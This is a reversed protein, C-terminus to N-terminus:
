KLFNLIRLRPITNQPMSQRQPPLLPPIRRAPSAQREWYRKESVTSRWGRIHSRISPVPQAHTSALPLKRIVGDQSLNSAGVQDGVSYPPRRWPDTPRAPAGERLCPPARLARAPDSHHWAGCGVGNQCLQLRSFCHMLRAFYWFCEFDRFYM